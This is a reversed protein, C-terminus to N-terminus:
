SKWGRMGVKYGQGKPSASGSNQSRSQQRPWRSSGQAHLAWVEKVGRDPPWVDRSRKEFTILAIKHHQGEVALWIVVSVLSSTCKQFAFVNFVERFPLWEPHRKRLHLGLLATGLQELPPM